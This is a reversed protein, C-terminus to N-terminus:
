LYASSGGVLNLFFFFFIRERAIEIFWYVWNLNTERGRELFVRVVRSNRKLRRGLFFKGEKSIGKGSSSVQLIFNFGFHYREREHSFIELSYHKKRSHNKSVALLSFEHQIKTLQHSLLSFFSYQEASHYKSFPWFNHM